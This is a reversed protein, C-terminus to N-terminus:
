PKSPSDTPPQQAPAVPKRLTIALQAQCTKSPDDFANGTRDGETAEFFLGGRKLRNPLGTFRAKGDVNTSVELDLKHTSMFGYAIHVKIKALYVPKNNTDTITFDATCPGIGGDIVPISKPDPTQALIPATLVLALIITKM